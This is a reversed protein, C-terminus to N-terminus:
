ILNIRDWVDFYFHPCDVDWSIFLSKLEFNQVSYQRAFHNVDSSPMLTFCGFYQKYLLWFSFSPGFLEWM